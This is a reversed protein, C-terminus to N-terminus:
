CEQLPSQYSLSGWGAGGALAADAFGDGNFDGAIPRMGNRQALGPFRRGLLNERQTAGHRNRKTITV